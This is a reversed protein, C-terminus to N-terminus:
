LTRYILELEMTGSFKGGEGVGELYPIIKKNNVVIQWGIITNTDNTKLSFMFVCDVQFKTESKSQKGALATFIKSVKIGAAKECLKRLGGVCERDRIITNLKEADESSKKLNDKAETLFVAAKGNLVKYSISDAYIRKVKKGKGEGVLICKDGQAGPYSVGIIEHLMQKYLNFTCYTIIDEGIGASDILGISIPAFDNVYFTNKYRKSIALNWKISCIRQRSADTFVIESTLLFLSKVSISSGNILYNHLAEDSFYYEKENPQTLNLHAGLNLSHKFIHIADEASLVEKDKIFEMMEAERSTGDFLSKYSVQSDRGVQFEAICNESGLMMSIFCLVGRDPDMAHGFRNIKAALKDQYWHYRLSDEFIRKYDAPGYTQYDNYKSKYEALCKNYYDEANLSNEYINIFGRILAEIEASYLMCSPREADVKLLENSIEEWAIFYAVSGNKIAIHREFSDTIKKGGGFEKNMGKSTPSIKIVPFKYVQGWFYTDSRQMKHDDPPAATSYEVAFLPLEKAGSIVTVLIDYDKSKRIRAVVSNSPVIAGKTKKNYVILINQEAIKKAACIYQKLDLGQEFVECYIRIKDIEM